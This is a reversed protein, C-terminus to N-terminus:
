PRVRHMCLKPGLWSNSPFEYSSVPNGIAQQKGPNEGETELCLPLGLVHCITESWLVAVEQNPEMGRLGEPALSEGLSFALELHRETTAERRELVANRGTEAQTQNNKPAQVHSVQYKRWLKGNNNAFVCKEATGPGPISPTVRSYTTNTKLLQRPLLSFNSSTNCWFCM